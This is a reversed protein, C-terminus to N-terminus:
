VKSPVRVFLTSVLNIAAIVAGLLFVSPFDFRMWLLGGSLAVTISFVHDITTALALTPEVHSPDLAIKKLYTARAIGFTMLLMDLIYCASTVILAINVPFLSRSFGYGICVPILIIAELALIKKEGLTDVAKGLLPQFVIGIVGGTFILGGMFEPQMGFVKVLVWPAFTLFIQKRTGYLINLWYFLRYEKYFKLHNRPQKPKTTQMFLLLGAAIVYFVSAVAFSPLYSLKIFRFGIFIFGSGVIAAVNRIANFQGLRKGEKGGHSLEMGISSNLPLFLHQGLSYIFLWVITITYNRAFLGILIVGIAQLLMAFSALRTGSLFFLLASVFAVSFGPFERPLELLTRDLSNLAFSINLYNNFISDYIGQSFASFFMVMIFLRMNIPLKDIRDKIAKIM